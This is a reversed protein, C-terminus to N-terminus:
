KKLSVCEIGDRRIEASHGLPPELLSSPCTSACVSIIPRQSSPASLGQGASRKGASMM